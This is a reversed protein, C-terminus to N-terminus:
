RSKRRKMVGIGLLGIGLMAISLPEPVSPINQAVVSGSSMDYNGSTLHEFGLGLTMVDSLLAGHLVSTGPITLGFSGMQALYHATGFTTAGGSLSLTAPGTPFGDESVLAAFKGVLSDMIGLELGLMGPGNLLTGTATLNTVDWGGVTGFFFIMGDVNGDDGDLIDAGSVHLGNVYFSVKLTPTAQAAQAVGMVILVLLGVLLNRGIRM